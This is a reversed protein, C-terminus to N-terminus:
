VGRFLSVIVAQEALDRVLSRGNPGSKTSQNAQRATAWFKDLGELFLIRTKPFCGVKIPIATPAILSGVYGAGTRDTQSSPLCM